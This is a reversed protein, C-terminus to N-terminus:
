AQPPGGSRNQDILDLKELFETLNFKKMFLEAFSSKGIGSKGCVMINFNTTCKSQSLTHLNTKTISESM